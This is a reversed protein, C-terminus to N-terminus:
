TSRPLVFAPLFLFSYFFPKLFLGQSFGLILLLLLGAYPYLKSLSFRRQYRDFTAYIRYFYLLTLPLGYKSLLDFIGNNRHNEVTFLQESIFNHKAGARGWGVWPSEKFSNFDALASGFRSTTTEDALEINKSIKEKLFPSREYFFYVGVAAVILTVIYLVNKRLLEVNVYLIFLFLAVYGATSLTTLLCIILVLNKKETLKKSYPHNFILAIILFVAFAGPEWFPGSNRHESFLSEHFTFLVMNPHTQYFGEEEAVGPVIQALVDLYFSEVGPIFSLVYLVLSLAGLKYVVNAYFRFFDARVIVVVSYALLLRIYTGSFTRFNFGGHLLYQFSEV